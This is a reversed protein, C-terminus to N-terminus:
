AMEKTKNHKDLFALKVFADEFNDQQAQQMLESVSGQTIRRGQAIVVVTDCLREVEQMIHTSFLICKNGGEPSKLWRLFERLARTAVVDLGNTPEDLIINKPDHVLARALATKMKEGQSFGETRREMIEGMDLWDALQTARASAAQASMGHLHGYYEINERASLRPYLGRADSLIGIHAQTANSETSVTKGDIEISGQDAKLLSAIMKLTTTKGAGNAGLLGTISGDQATFSVGNVARILDVNQKKGPWSLVKRWNGSASQGSREFAKHLNDVIIM